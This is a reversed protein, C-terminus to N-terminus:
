TKKNKPLTNIQFVTQFCSSNRGNRNINSCNLVIVFLKIVSVFHRAERMWYKMTFKLEFEYFLHTVSQKQWICNGNKTPTFRNVELQLPNLAYARMRVLQIWSWHWLHTIHMLLAIVCKGFELVWWRVSRLAFTIRKKEENSLTCEFPPWIYYFLELHSDFFFFTYLKDFCLTGYRAFSHVTYSPCFICITRDFRCNWNYWKITTCFVM